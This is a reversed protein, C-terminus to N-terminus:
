AELDDLWFMAAFIALAGALPWLAIYEPLNYPM